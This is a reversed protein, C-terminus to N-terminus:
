RNIKSKFNFCNRIYFSTHSAKAPLLLNSSSRDYWPDRPQQLKAIEGRTQRRWFTIASSLQPGAFCNRKRLRSERESEVTYGAEHGTKLVGTSRSGTELVRAVTDRKRQAIAMGRTEWRLVFTSFPGPWALVLDDFWRFERAHRWRASFEFEIEREKDIRHFCGAHKRDVVLSRIEIFM